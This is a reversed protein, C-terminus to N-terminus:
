KIFENYENTAIITYKDPNLLMDNKVLQAIKDDSFWPLSQAGVYRGRENNHLDMISALQVTTTASTLGPQYVSTCREKLLKVIM